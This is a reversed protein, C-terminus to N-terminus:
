IPIQYIPHNLEVAATTFDQHLTYSRWNRRQVSTIELREGNKRCILDGSSLFPEWLTWSSQLFTKKRGYEYSVIQEPAGGLLSVYIEIPKFYGGVFGTGYCILDQGHQQNTKRVQDFNPCRVGDYKRKLLLVKEGGASLLWRERNRIELFYREFGHTGNKDTGPM